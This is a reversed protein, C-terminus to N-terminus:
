RAARSMGFGDLDDIIRSFNTIGAQQIDEPAIDVWEVSGTLKAVFALWITRGNKIMIILLFAQRLRRFQCQCLRAPEFLRYYGGNNWCCSEIESLVIM